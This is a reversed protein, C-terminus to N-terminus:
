EDATLLALIVMAKFANETKKYQILNIAQFLFFSQQICFMQCLKATYYCEIVCISISFYPSVFPNLLLCAIANDDDDDDSDDDDDKKGQWGVLWGLPMGEDYVTEHKSLATGMEEM